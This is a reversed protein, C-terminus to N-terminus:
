RKLEPAQECLKKRSWFDSYLKRKTLPQEYAMRCVWCDFPEKKEAYMEFKERWAHYSNFKADDRDVSHLHKALDRPSTFNRVHIFSNPPSLSRYEGIRAGLAVPIIYSNSNLTNWYKETIYESCISNEFALYFRYKSKLANVCQLDKYDKCGDKIGTCKGYIDVSINHKQLETVYKYRGSSANCNSM